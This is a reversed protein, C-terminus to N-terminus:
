MDDISLPPLHYSNTDIVLKEVGEILEKDIELAVHFSGIDDTVMSNVPPYVERYKVYLTDGEKYVGDVYGSVMGTHYNRYIHVLANDDFFEETYIKDSHNPYANWQSMNTIFRDSNGFTADYGLNVETYEVSDASAPTNDYTTPILLNAAFKQIITADKVNIKHDRNLDAAREFLELNYIKTLSELKAIYKQLFTADKINVEYDGNTDGNKLLAVGYLDSSGLPLSEIDAYYAEELTYVTDTNYLYVLFERGNLSYPKFYTYEGFDARYSFTDETSGYSALLFKYDKSTDDPDPSIEQLERYSLGGAPFTPAYGFLEECEKAYQSWKRFIFESYPDILDEAYAPFTATLSLVVALMITFISIFAKKM